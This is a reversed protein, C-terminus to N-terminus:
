QFRIEGDLQYIMRQPFSLGSGEQCVLLLDSGDKLEIRKGLYFRTVRPLTIRSWSKKEYPGDFRDSMYIYTGHDKGVGGFLLYWKNNKEWFQATETREFCKPYCIVKYTEWTMLDKSRMMVQAGSTENPAGIIQSNIAAYWWGDIKQPYIYPDALMRFKFTEGAWESCLETPFEAQCKWNWHDLDDSEAVTFGKYTLLMNWQDGNRVCSGTAIGRVPNEKLATPQEEWHILDKSVAHGVWQRSHRLSQDPMINKDPYELYFAHTTDGNKIFWFDWANLDKPKFAIGQAEAGALHCVSCVIIGIVFATKQKM